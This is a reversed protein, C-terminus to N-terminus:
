RIPDSQYSLNAPPMRGAGEFFQGLERAAALRVGRARQLGHGVVSQHAVLAGRASTEGRFDDM